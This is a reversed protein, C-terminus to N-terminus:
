EEFKDYNYKIKCIRFLELLIIFMGSEVMSDYVPFNKQNLKM